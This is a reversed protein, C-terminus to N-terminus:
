KAPAMRAVVLGPLKYHDGRYGAERLMAEWDWCHRECLVFALFEEGDGSNQLRALLLSDINPLQSNVLAKYSPFERVEKIQYLEYGLSIRQEDVTIRNVALIKAEFEQRWGQYLKESALRNSDDSACCSTVLGFILAAFLQTHEKKM